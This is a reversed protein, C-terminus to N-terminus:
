LSEYRYPCHNLIIFKQTDCDKPFIKKNSLATYINNRWESLMIYYKGPLTQKTTNTDNGASFVKYDNAEPRLCYYRNAYIGHTESQVIVYQCWMIIDTPSSGHCSPM